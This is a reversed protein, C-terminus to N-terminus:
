EVTQLDVLEYFRGMEPVETLVPLWAGPVASMRLTRGTGTDWDYQECEFDGAAVEVRATGHYSLAYEKPILKPTSAGNPALSSSFCNTLRSLEGIRNNNAHACKWIDVAIPHCGFCTTRGPTAVRQSFRGETASRVEATAYKESFEFWGCGVFQHDNVVQVFCHQPLFGADATYIVERVLGVPDMECQCRLIRTGDNTVTVSFWERGFEGTERHAYTIKGRYSRTPDVM